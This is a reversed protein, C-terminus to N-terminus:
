KSQAMYSVILELEGATMKDKYDTPMMGPAFGEAVDANPDLIARRLYEADREAGIRTLDPGIAGQQGAIKHCAGCGYKNVVEEPTKAPPPAEAQATKEEGASPEGKPIEVTVEMGALDQLYAIIARLEIENLGIAGTSVDPMPSVTDNTGTVGYGAVVYASPKVMSEYLYEEADKAEGNYRPDKLREEAVVAAQELLPARKVVPNHCLTCTGKGNFVKEGLAIFDEMSMSAVDLVEEKPPPAPQIPPIYKVAFLTYAGMVFVSFLVIKFFIKM